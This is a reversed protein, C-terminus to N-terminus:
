IPIFDSKPTSLGVRDSQPTDIQRWGMQDASLNSMVM